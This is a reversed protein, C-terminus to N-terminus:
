LNLEARLKKSLSAAVLDYSHKLLDWFLGAEVDSEPEVTNWHVKNSHWGPRIGSYQERLEVAREPDCKLNVGEFHDVNFLAFIKGGVKYVLTKKDFPFGRTVGAWSSLVYDITEPDVQHM